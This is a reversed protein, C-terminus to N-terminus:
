KLSHAAAAGHEPGPCCRTCTGPHLQASGCVLALGADQLLASSLAKTGAM